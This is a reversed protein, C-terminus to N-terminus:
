RRASEGRRATKPAGTLDALLNRLRWASAPAPLDPRNLIEAPGMVEGYYAVNAKWDLALVAGELSVGAFLGRSRSYSYIEAALKADTGAEFQRGVPGAAVGADAGLTFKGRNMLFSDVGRRNRFVLVLDSAQAGIQAGVSGGGITLFVPHSWAGTNPERVLVVGRGYRGGVVFGAKIVNPIIAIGQAGRLLASPIGDEPDQTLEALVATSTDVTVDERLQAQAPAPVALLLALLLAPRPM